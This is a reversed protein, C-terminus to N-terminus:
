LLRTSLKSDDYTYHSKVWDRAFVSAEYFSTSSWKKYLASHSNKPQSLFNLIDIVTPQLEEANYGSLNVFSPSWEGKVLMQKSLRLSAAAIASPLINSLQQDICSIEIFYSALMRTQADCGLEKISILRLFKAPNPRGPQSYFPQSSRIFIETKKLEEDTILNDVMFVFESITPSVKEELNAANFLAVIGILKLEALAVSLMSFIEDINDVAAFLTEPLFGLFYHLEIVWDVLVSRLEHQQPFVCSPGMSDGITLNLVPATIKPRKKGVLQPEETPKRKIGVNVNTDHIPKTASLTRVTATAITSACKTLEESKMESDKTIKEVTNKNHPEITSSTKELPWSGYSQNFFNLVKKTVTIFGTAFINKESTNDEKIM